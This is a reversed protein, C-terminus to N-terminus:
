CFHPNSMYGSDSGRSEGEQSRQQSDKLSEVVKALDSMRKTCSFVYAKEIFFKFIVKLQQIDRAFCIDHHTPTFSDSVSPYFKDSVCFKLGSPPTPPANPTEM